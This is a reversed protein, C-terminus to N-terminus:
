ADWPGPAFFGAVILFRRMQREWDEWIAGDDTAPAAEELADMIRGYDEVTLDGSDILAAAEKLLASVADFDVWPAAEGEPVDDDILDLFPVGGDGQPEKPDTM